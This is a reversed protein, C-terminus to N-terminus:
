YSCFCSLLSVFTFVATNTECFVASVMGRMCSPNHLQQANKNTVCDVPAKRAIHMLEALFFLVPFVTKM